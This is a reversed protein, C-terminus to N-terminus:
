PCWPCFKMRDQDFPAKFDANGIKWPLSDFIKFGPEAMVSEPGLLNVMGFKTSIRWSIVSSIAAIALYTSKWAFIFTKRIEMAVSQLNGLESLNEATGTGLKVTQSSLKSLPPENKRVLKKIRELFPIEPGWGHMWGWITEYSWPLSQSKFSM